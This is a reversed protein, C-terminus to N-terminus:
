RKREAREAERGPAATRGVATRRCREAVPTRAASDPAQPAVKLYEPRAAVRHGASAPDVKHSEAPEASRLEEPVARSLAARVAKRRELRDVKRQEEM